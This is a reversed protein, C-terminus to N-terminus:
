LDGRVWKGVSWGVAGRVHGHEGRGLNGRRLGRHGRWPFRSGAGRVRATANGVIRGDCTGDGNWVRTGVGCGLWTGVGNGEVSGVGLMGGVRAEDISGVGTGAGAEDRAGECTGDSM